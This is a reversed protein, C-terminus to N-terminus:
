REEEQIQPVLVTEEAFGIEESDQLVHIEAVYEGPQVQWGDAMLYGAQGPLIHDVGEQLELQISRMIEGSALDKLYVIGRPTIHADGSNEVVASLLLPEGETVVVSLIEASYQIEGVLGHLEVTKEGLYEGEPSYATATVYGYYGGSVGERPAQVVFVARGSRRPAIEMAEPTRLAVTLNSFISRPYEPAIDQGSLSVTIAENSNNTIQLVQSDAGGLHMAASLVEPELTIYLDDAAYAFDGAAVTLQETHVKQRGDAYRLFLRLEYTGPFLPRTIPADLWLESGPYVDMSPTEGLTEEQNGFVVRELLARKDDRITMEAALPYLLNSTNRLVARAYPLGTEDKEVSLSDVVLEPRLGPRDVNIVMRIAYRVRLTIQGVTEESQPEVMVAVVYTGAADLPVHVEGKIPRQEGPPILVQTSDLRVWGLAPNDSEEPFVLSGDREQAISFLTVDVIEQTDDAGAIIEFPAIDGPKLDLEFVLPQVGIAQVHGFTLFLFLIPPLLTWICSRARKM